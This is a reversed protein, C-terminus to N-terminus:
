QQNVRGAQGQPLPRRGQRAGPILGEKGLESGIVIAHTSVHRAAKRILFVNPVLWMPRSDACLLFFFLGPVSRVCSRLVERFGKIKLPRGSIGRYYPTRNKVCVRAPEKRQNTTPAPVGPVHEIVSVPFTLHVM